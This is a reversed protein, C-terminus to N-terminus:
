IGGDPTLTKGLFEVWIYDALPEACDGAPKCTPMSGMGTNLLDVIESYSRTSDVIVDFFASTGDAGHCGVCSNDSGGTYLTKGADVRADIQAQTLGAEEFTLFYAAIDAACQGTCNTGLKQMDAEIYSAIMDPTRGDSLNQPDIPYAAGSDNASNGHCTSCKAAEGADWLTKGNSADGALQDTHCGEANVTLGAGTNPCADAGDEIGDMDSDVLMPAEPLNRFYAAVDAACQGSCPNAESPMNVAIYDALEADTTLLLNNADIARLAADPDNAFSGHCGMCSESEWLGAGTDANGTLQSAACGQQDTPVNSPTGLCADVDDTVGDMDNDMPAPPLTRFYAAVDAACQGACPADKSPMNVAIYDALEADSTLLLNDADIARLAANPDNAFNGHCGMCSESEWLGAGTDADGTLQSAACGQADLPVGAPTNPCQDIADNTGDNDSDLQSPACGNADVTSGAPTAACMDIANNVGDNDSDLESEACGETNTIANAPTMPCQDIANNVGDDDDDRQSPSCGQSDASETAPTDACQDDANSVGDGDSDLESAACGDENVTANAPTNPCQDVNDKVGDNDTDRQSASCGDANVTEGAPTAPCLDVSDDITDRDSDSQSASCGNADATENTPTNSCQDVDDTVGDNDSDLQSPSCGDANATEGAPTDACNDASDFVGDNDSDTQSPSCGDANATEGTPTNACKDANDFIGDNDSDVQSPSCGESNAVEGAPTNDCQDINDLVGDNDSDTQSASCGNADVTEDTPTNACQDADDNVGDGDTDRESAACGFEDVEANAPTSPCRDAGDEVGDQDADVFNQDESCGHEDVPAGEATDACMDLADSVGDNDADTQSRSCGDVNATEGAPTNPCQDKDDTVTDNDSDLQSLACGEANVDAGAPTELCQDDADNVGDGDSDVFLQAESCGESNVTEGAATGLCQDVADDVGDNDADVILQEASCGNADVTADAATNPCQDATDNVGDQDSDSPVMPDTIPTLEIPPYANEVLMVFQEHFWHGAHPAGSLADANTPGCMHDFSKGEENATTANPDAIGDSEGPPKMWYYADIYPRSPDPNAKPREGIGAGDVNCWSGRATRRDIRSSVTGDASSPRNEGGWGNRATDIIFGLDTAFGNAVFESHLADVYSNEDVMRNYGYFSNSVITDDSPDIYPEELPTYNSTNSAFGRIVDLSGSPTAGKVLATFGEVAKTRNNEWGLWGSHAIDVYTYVNPMDAFKAIAYQIGKEYIQKDDVEQCTPVGLNTLMNPYSDPELMAVIRINPYQAFTDAIVDIYQEQYIRMGDMDSHLTGNSAAAACDRDPLNYVIIVATMPPLVGDEVRDLQQAKAAEFHGELSRRGGNAEGGYIAEIRDLWVASPVRKVTEMKQAVASAPDMMAISEDMLTAIDPSVYFHAGEFPNGDNIINPALSTYGSPASSSSVIIQSSSSGDDVSSSSDSDNSSSNGISSSGEASSFGVSSASSADPLSSAADSSQASSVSSPSSDSSSSHHKKPFILTDGDCASLGAILSGMIVVRLATLRAGRLGQQLM